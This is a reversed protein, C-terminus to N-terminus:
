YYSDEKKRYTTVYIAPGGKVPCKNECIGCGVCAEEVIYPMRLVKEEGGDGEITRERYHIAKEPIPCMEECVMCSKQRVYPICRSTNIYAIGIKRKQKEELSLKEIAGTPCIESCLKCNYECYGIRPVLEPTWLKSIGGEFLLPQLGNTPCVKMCAGCSICLDLFEREEKAGPPRLIFPDEKKEPYNLELAPLAVMGIAGGTIVQRRTLLPKSILLPKSSLSKEKDTKEKKDKKSFKKFPNEFGFSIAKEPCLYNCNFCYICEQNVTDKGSGEISDMKCKVQCASCLTCEPSVKRQFFVLGSILGLMGGLPCLSRCWYRSYKLSLLLIALFAFFMLLHNAYFPQHLTLIKKNILFDSLNSTMDALFPVKYTLELINNIFLNIFPYIVLGYSRQAICLPDLLGAVSVGFISLVLLAIFIIYKWSHNKGRWKTKRLVM